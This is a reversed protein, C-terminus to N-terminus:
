GWIKKESTIAKYAEIANAGSGIIWTDRHWLNLKNLFYKSSWERLQYNVIFSFVVNNDM